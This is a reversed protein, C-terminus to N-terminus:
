HNRIIFVSYLKEGQFMNTEIHIKKFHDKVQAKTEKAAKMTRHSIFHTYVEKDKGKGKTLTTPIQRITKIDAM